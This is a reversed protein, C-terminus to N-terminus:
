RPGSTDDEDERVTAVVVKAGRAEVVEVPSGADVYEGDALVTIRKGGFSAKGSPKLPTVAVGRKGVLDAYENSSATFGDESRARHSLVSAKNIWSEPNKLM